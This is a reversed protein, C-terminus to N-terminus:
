KSPRRLTLKLDGPPSTVKWEATEQRPEVKKVQSAHTWGKEATRIATDGELQGGIKEYGEIEKPSPHPPYEQVEGEEIRPTSVKMLAVSKAEKDALNNGRTCFQMGTQHGKVHIVAIAEPERIVKLIQRILEEHVLGKGRTNLLGREEWIKEFTHVVGFAYKSDTFITGKKGELKWLARLVAYLECAQASWGTNLPGSEVVEGTRGDVVVYGSKRKGDIVRASGDVFWKEGEELGEEELDPRIKTQLEVVEACDHFPVGAAEGFLFQTPNQASPTRLELDRSHILIAEYKLLRADTLWKDAKQQLISRVHHPTYVVLPAKFTVKKAEVLIAVAVIAQLCTPWGRSVPDLLKSVYGVPKRAGAWDPSQAQDDLWNGAWRAICGDLGHSALKELLIRHPVTEFAKSFGLYVVDVAKVEDVLCTEKVDFSLLNPFFSGVVMLSSLMHKIGDAKVNPVIMLLATPPGVTEMQSTWIEPAESVKVQTHHTWRHKATKIATETTLLVQFPGHWKAVPPADKWEKVLVWDGPQINYVAFDLPLTQTLQDEKYPSKAM